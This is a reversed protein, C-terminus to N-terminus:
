QNVGSMSENDHGAKPVLVEDGDPGHVKRAKREKRGWFNGEWLEM